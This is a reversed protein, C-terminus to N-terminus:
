ILDRGTIRRYDERFAARIEALQEDFRSVKPPNAKSYYAAAAEPMEDGICILLAKDAVCQAANGHLGSTEVDCRISTSIAEGKSFYSAEKKHWLAELAIKKALGRSM